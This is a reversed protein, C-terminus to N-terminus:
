SAWGVLLGLKSISMCYGVVVFVGFVVGEDAGSVLVRERAM